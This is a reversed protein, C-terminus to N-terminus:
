KSEGQLAADAANLIEATTRADPGILFLDKETVLTPKRCAEQLAAATWRLAERLRKNDAALADCARRLDEAQQNGIM